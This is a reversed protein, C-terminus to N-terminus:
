LIRLHALQRIEDIVQRAAPKAKRRSVGLRSSMVTTMRDLFLAGWVPRFGTDPLEVLIRPDDLTNTLRDGARGSQLYVAGSRLMSEVLIAQHEISFPIIVDLAMPKKFSLVLMVRDDDDRSSAWQSEADGPDIHRHVRILEALEPRTDADLILVPILKGDAVPGAMAADGVVPVALSADMRRKEPKTM